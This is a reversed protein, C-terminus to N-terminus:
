CRFKGVGVAEFGASQLEKTMRACGCFVEVAGPKRVIKEAIVKDKSGYRETDEVQQPDLNTTCTKSRINTINGDITNPARDLAENRKKTPSPKALHKAEEEDSSNGVSVTDSSDDGILVTNKNCGVHSGELKNSTSPNKHAAAKAKKHNQPM